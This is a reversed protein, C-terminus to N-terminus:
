TALYARLADMRNQASSYGHDYLDYLKRPERCVRGVGMTTDPRLVFVEGRAEMDQIESLTKNYVDHRQALLRHMGALEPHRWQCAWGSKSPKKAYGKPQTLVIVPRAHGQEVCFRVPIPDVIGGDMVMRGEYRVPTSVVPLSATARIVADVSDDTRAFEDKELRVAEGRVCDTLGVWFKVPSGRFAAYDFPIIRRPITRFIFEMGFLDGGRLLRAWSLYRRNRVFGINVMRNREPQRAVYNAGNCAGMSVGYVSAFWLGEDMFRRLVGSTFVGRLGGGELVLGANTLNM